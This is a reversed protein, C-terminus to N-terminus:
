FGCNEKRKESLYRAARRKAIANQLRQEPLIDGANIIENLTKEYNEKDGTNCYYARALQFKTLLSKGENIEIARDFQKKAEDLEAMATRAHYAGLLTRGLGYALTEDLEVSRRVLAEGVYLEGIFASGLEPDGKAINVRSLWAQGLWLLALADDTTDFKKLYEVITDQNKKAEEFGPAKKELLQIGYQIARSYANTARSRHYKMMAEDEADEAIEYDDEIFAFGAGAWAKTLMYLADENEPALKRMGEMQGLGAFAVGRAVEYDGITDVAVSGDRTGRIQGNLIATKICGTTGLGVLLAAVAAKALIRM